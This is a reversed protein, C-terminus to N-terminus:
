HEHGAESKELDAKILYSNQSVILEGNELGQLVEVNKSDSLGLSIPRPQYATGKKVFVVKQGEFEQIASKPILMPTNKTATIVQAKTLAGVPWNGDANNLKVFALTYPKGESSPVIHSISSAQVFDTNSLWVKQGSKITARQNPFIKLQAWVDDYNAISFLIQGNSLEGTNAHRAIITGTFPSSVPYRKLSENSEVTALTDGRTVKDGLTMTVDSIVGDFRARIHSLSAPDTTVDGFLVAVNNLQGASVAVTDIGSARAMSDSIVAVEEDHDDEGALTLLPIITLMIVSLLALKKIVYQRNQNFINM